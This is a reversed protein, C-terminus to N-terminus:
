DPVHTHVAGIFDAGVTAPTGQRPASHFKLRTCGTAELAPSDATLPVAHCSTHYHLLLLLLYRQLLTDKPRRNVEYIKAVSGKYASM